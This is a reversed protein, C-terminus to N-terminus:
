NNNEINLKKIKEEFELRQQEKHKQLENDWYEKWDKGYEDEMISEFEDGYYDMEWLLLPNREEIEIDVNYNDKWWKIVTEKNSTPSAGLYINFSFKQEDRDFKYFNKCNSINDMVINFIKDTINKADDADTYEFLCNYIQDKLPPVKEASRYGPHKFGDEDIKEPIYADKLGGETLYREVIEIDEKWEEKLRYAELYKNVIYKMEDDSIYHREYVREDKGIKGSEYEAILNDYDAMPQAKAYLETMCKHIAESIIDERELM